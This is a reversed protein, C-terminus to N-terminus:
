ANLAQTIDAKLAQTSEIGVSLRILQPSIGAKLRESDTLLSHSTTAPDLATSEVGAFSSARKILKLRNLFEASTIRDNLEFSVVGGYGTMQNKALEHHPHSSLGPYYVNKVQNQDVLWHALELANQNQAMVRLGMTKISRDLLWVTMDSLSGGLMKARNLLQKKVAHTCAVTGALIDSHGSMYKTASHIIVDVGYDAPNQNIPSGMTSDIVVLINNKHALDAVAKFDVIELLPNSPSEIYILRTNSKIKKLFDDAALGESFDYEINFDKLHNVVFNYTGGYISRQIVLHDGSSLLGLLTTTIAAMGSAFVMGAECADLIAIKANLGKQNPTNLYRPYPTDKLGLYDYATSFHIAPVASKYQDEPLEGAHVCNTNVDIKKSAM